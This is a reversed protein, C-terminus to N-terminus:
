SHRMYEIMEIRNNSLNLDIISNASNQPRNFHIDLEELSSLGHFAGDEVYSIRNSALDLKRLDSFNLFSNAPIETLVRGYM